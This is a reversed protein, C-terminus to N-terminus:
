FCKQLHYTKEKKSIKKKIIVSEFLIKYFQKWSNFIGIFSILNRPISRCVNREQRSPDYHKRRAPM